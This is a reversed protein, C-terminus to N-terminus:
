KFSKTGKAINCARCALRVNNWTHTGGKCIPVVHEITPADLRNYNDNLILHKDCIYCVGHDRKYLKALTISKDYNGNKKAQKTRANIKRRKRLNYQKKRCKESCFRRGYHQEFARGCYECPLFTIAKYTPKATLKDKNKIYAKASIVGEHHDQIQKKVKTIKKKLDNEEGLLSNLSNQRLYQYIIEREALELNM